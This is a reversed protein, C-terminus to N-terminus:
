RVATDSTPELGASAVHSVLCTRSAPTDPPKGSTSGNAGGILQSTEILSIIKFPVNFQILFIFFLELSTTMGYPFTDLLHLHFLVAHLGQDSQEELLLKILMQVKQRSMCNRFNLVLISCSFKMVM